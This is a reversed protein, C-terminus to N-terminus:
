PKFIVIMFSFRQINICYSAHRGRWIKENKWLMYAHLVTDFESVDSVNRTRTCDHIYFHRLINRTELDFCLQSAPKIWEILKNQLISGVFEWNHCWQHGIMLWGVNQLVSILHSPFPFTVQIVNDRNCSYLNPLRWRYCM